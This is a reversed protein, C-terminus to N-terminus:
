IYPVPTNTTFNGIINLVKNSIDDYGSSPKNKLSSLIREIEIETCPTIFLSGPNKNIRQLYYDISHAGNPINNSLNTALTPLINLLNMASQVRVIITQEM